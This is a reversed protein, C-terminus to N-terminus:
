KKWKTQRKRVQIQARMRVHLHDCKQPGVHAITPM